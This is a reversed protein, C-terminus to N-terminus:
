SLAGSQRFTIQGIEWIETDGGFKKKIGRPKSWKVPMNYDDAGNWDWFAGAVTIQIKLTLVGGQADDLFAIFAEYNATSEFWIKKCVITRIRTGLSWATHGDSAYDLHAVSPDEFGFEPQAACLVKFTDGGTKILHIWGGYDYTTM